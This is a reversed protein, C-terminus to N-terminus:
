QHVITPVIIDADFSRVCNEQARSTPEFSM